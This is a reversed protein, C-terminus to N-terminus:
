LCCLFALSQPTWELTLNARPKRQSLLDLPPSQVASCIQPGWEMSSQLLLLWLFLIFSAWFVAPQSETRPTIELHRPESFLFRLHTLTQSDKGQGWNILLNKIPTWAIGFFAIAGWELVRAQFIGHVSFGPLSCDMPDCLRVRSLSKVKVKWKWANSFSIAVWELIRAQLIGPVPSGPLSGDIPYCLAPCSQFFKAAAAAPLGDTKM